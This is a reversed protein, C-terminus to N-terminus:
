VNEEGEPERSILSIPHAQKFNERRHLWNFMGEDQSWREWFKGRHPKTPPVINRQSDPGVIVHSPRIADSAFVLAFEPFLALVNLRLM